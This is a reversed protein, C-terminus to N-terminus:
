MTDRVALLLFADDSSSDLRDDHDTDPSDAKKPSKKTTTRIM